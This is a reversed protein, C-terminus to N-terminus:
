GRGRGALAGGGISGIAGLGAGILGSAASAGAANAAMQTQQNGGILTAPYARDPNLVLGLNIGEAQRLFGHSVAFAQSPHDLM